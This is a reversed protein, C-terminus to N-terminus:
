VPCCPLAMSTHLKDGFSSFSYWTNVQKFFTWCACFKVTLAADNLENILSFLLLYLIVFLIIWFVPKFCTLVYQKHTRTALILVVALLHAEWDAADSLLKVLRWSLENAFWDIPIARFWFFVLKQLCLNYIVIIDFFYMFNFNDCTLTLQFYDFLLVLSNILWLFFVGKRLEEINIREFLLEEEAIWDLWIAREFILHLFILKSKINLM